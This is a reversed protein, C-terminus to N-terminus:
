PSYQPRPAYPRIWRFSKVASPKTIDGNIKATFEQSSAGPISLPPIEQRQAESVNTELLGITYQTLSNLVPVNEMVKEISFDGLPGLIGVVDESLRGYADISGQMNLNNVYGKLLISLRPGETKFSDIRIVGGKVFTLHGYAREFEGTRKLRVGNLIRNISLSLVNNSLINAARLYYDIRGLEGMEGNQVHVNVAGQMTRIIEDTTVGQFALKGSAYGIGNIQDAPMNLFKEGFLGVDIGKAKLDMSTLGTVVDYTIDGNVVGKLTATSFNNAKFINYRDFVIDTHLDYCPVNNLIFTKAYFKGSKIVVPNMHQENNKYLSYEVKRPKQPPSLVALSKAVEDLDFTKANITASEIIAPEFSTANMTLQGDLYTNKLSFGTVNAMVKKNKLSATVKSIKAHLTPIMTNVLVFDGQINYNQTNGNINVNGTVDSTANQGVPLSIKIPRLIKVKIDDLIAQKGLTRIAGTVSAIQAGGMNSAMNNSLVRSHAQYVGVDSLNITKGKLDLGANLLSVGGTQVLVYNGADNLMQITLRQSDKDMLINCVTPVSGKGVQSFNMIAALDSAKLKGRATINIKEKKDKLPILGNVAFSSSNVGLQPISLVAKESDFNLKGIPFNIKAPNSKLGLSMKNLTVIGKYNLKDLKGTLDVIASIKGNVSSVESMQAKIDKNETISKINLAPVIIKIAANANEDINGKIEFKNNDIIGATNQIAINNDHFKVNSNFNNITVLGNSYNIKANSIKLLGSSQITKLNSKLKLDAVMGGQLKLKNLEGVPTGVSALIANAVGQVDALQMQSTKLKCDVFDKKFEGSLDIIDVPSIYLKSDTIFKNKKAKIHIHSDPLRKGNIKLSLKDILAEGYIDEPTKIKLDAIINAKVCNRSLEYLPNVPTSEEMQTLPHEEQYALFEPMDIQTKIDYNLCRIDNIAMAGDANFKTGFKNNLGILEIKKGKAKANIVKPAAKDLYEIHYDKIFVNMGDTVVAFDQKKPPAKKTKEFNFKGNKEKVLYFDPSIINVDSIQAKKFLLPILDVSASAKKAHFVNENKLTRILPEEFTVKIKLLPASSLHIQEMNIKLDTAEEFSKYITSKFQNGNIFFPVAQLCVIIGLLVASAIILINKLRKDM